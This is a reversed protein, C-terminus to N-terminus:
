EVSTQILKACGNFSNSVHEKTQKTKTKDNPASQFTPYLSTAERLVIYLFEVWLSTLVFFLVTSFLPSITLAKPELLFPQNCLAIAEEQVFACTSNEIM